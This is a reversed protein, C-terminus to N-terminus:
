DEMFWEIFWECNIKTAEDFIKESLDYDLTAVRDLIGMFYRKFYETECTVIETMLLEYLEM